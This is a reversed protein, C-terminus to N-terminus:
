KKPCAPLSGTGSRTSKVASWHFSNYSGKEGAQLYFTGTEGPLILPGQDGSCHSKEYDYHLFTILITDGPKAKGKLVKEIKLPIQYRYIDSCKNSDVLTLCQIPSQAVAEVILNSDSQLVEPTLPPTLAFLPASVGWLFFGFLSSLIKRM